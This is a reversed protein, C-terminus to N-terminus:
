NEWFDEKMFILCWLVHINMITSAHVQKEEGECAITKFYKPHKEANDSESQLKEIM